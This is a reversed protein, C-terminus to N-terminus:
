EFVKSCEKIVRDPPIAKLNECGSPDIVWDPRGYPIPAGPNSAHSRFLMIVRAQLATAIHLIGTDGGLVVTSLSALGATVLLPKGAIVNFGAEKAPVLAELDTPGGCFFM